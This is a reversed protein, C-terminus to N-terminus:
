KDKKGREAGLMKEIMNRLEVRRKDFEEQDKKVVEIKGMLEDVKLDKKPSGPPSSQINILEIEKSILSLQSFLKRKEDQMDTIRACVQDLERKKESIGEFSKTLEKMESLQKELDTKARAIDAMAKSDLSNLEKLDTRTQEKIESIKKLYEEIPTARGGDFKRVEKFRGELEDIVRLVGGAKQLVEKSERNVSDHLGELRQ